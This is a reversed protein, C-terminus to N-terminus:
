RGVRKLLMTNIIIRKYYKATHRYTDIFDLKPLIPVIIVNWKNSIINTNDTYFFYDINDDFIINDIGNKTENRYNGFNVSYIAITKNEM